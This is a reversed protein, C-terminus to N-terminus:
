QYFYSKAIDEPWKDFDDSIIIQNKFIGIRKNNKAQYKIIKAMPVGDKTLIIEENNEVVEKVLASLRTKANTININKM